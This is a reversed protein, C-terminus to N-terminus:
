KMKYHCVLYTNKKHVAYVQPRLGAIIIIDDIITGSPFRNYIDEIAVGNVDSAYYSHTIKMYMGSKTYSNGNIDPYLNNLM